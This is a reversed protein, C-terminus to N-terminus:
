KGGKTEVQQQQQGSNELSKIQAKLIDLKSQVWPSIELKIEERQEGVLDYLKNFFDQYHRQRIEMQNFLTETAFTDGTAVELNHKNNGGLQGVELGLNRKIDITLNEIEQIKYLAGQNAPNMFLGSGMKEDWGDAIVVGEKFEKKLQQTSKDGSFNTNIFIKSASNNSETYYLDVLEDLRKLDDKVGFYEWDPSKDSNNWFLEAALRNGLKPFSYIREQKQEMQGKKNREYIYFALKSVGNEVWLKITTPNNTGFQVNSGELKLENKGLLEYSLILNMPTIYFTDGHPVIVLAAIGNLSIEQGLQKRITEFDSNELIQKIKENKIKFPISELKNASDIAKHKLLTKSKM